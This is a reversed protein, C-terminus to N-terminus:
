LFVYELYIFVLKTCEYVWYEIMYINYGKDGERLIIIIKIMISLISEVTYTPSQKKNNNRYACQM